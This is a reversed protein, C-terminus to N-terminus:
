ITNTSQTCLGNRIQVLFNATQYVLSGPIQKSQKIKNKVDWLCDKPITHSIYMYVSKYEVHYNIINHVLSNCLVVFFFM